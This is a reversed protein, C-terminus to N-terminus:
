LVTQKILGDKLILLKHLHLILHLHVKALSLVLSLLIRVLQKNLHVVQQIRDLIM